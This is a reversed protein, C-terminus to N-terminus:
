KRLDTWFFMETAPIRALGILLASLLNNLPERDKALQRELM